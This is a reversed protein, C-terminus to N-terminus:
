VLAVLACLRAETVSLLWGQLRIIHEEDFDQQIRRQLLNCLRAPNATHLDKQGTAFGSSISDVLVKADAESPVSRLYELGILRASDKHRLLAILKIELSSNSGREALAAWARFPRTFTWFGLWLM